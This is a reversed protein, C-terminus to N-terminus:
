LFAVVNPIVIDSGCVYRCEERSLPQQKGGDSSWEGKLQGKWLTMELISTDEKCKYHALVSQTQNYLTERHEKGHHHESFIAQARSRVDEVWSKAGWHVLSGVLTSQLLSPTTKTWNYLLYDMPRKGNADEKCDLIHYPYEELLVELLDQSPGITSFLIHFPTMGFKDVLPLNDDKTKQICERLEQTTVSSHDYFIKHLPFNDFRRVLGAVINDAEKGFRDQLLACEHFSGYIARVGFASIIEDAADSGQPLVINALASCMGFSGEEIEIPNSDLPVVVTVLRICAGFAFDCIYKLTNPLRVSQLSLCGMFAKIPIETISTRSLDAEILARCGDFASDGILNVSSPIKIRELSHCRQFASEGITKLQYPSSSSCEFEVKKLAECEAFSCGGISEITSCIKIKLLSTCRYFVGNGIKILGNPLTVLRLKECNYCLLSPLIQIDPNVTLTRASCPVMEGKRGQYEYFRENVVEKSHCFSRVWVTIISAILLGTTGGPFFSILYWLLAM